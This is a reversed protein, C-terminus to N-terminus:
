RMEKVEVLALRCRGQRKLNECTMPDVWQAKYKEWSDRRLRSITQWHIWESRPNVVIVAWLLVPASTKM